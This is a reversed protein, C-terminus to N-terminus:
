KLKLRRGTNWEYNYKTFSSACLTRGCSYVVSLYKRTGPFCPDRFTQNSVAVVCKQKSYCSRSVSHVSSHNHARPPPDRDSRCLWAEGSGYFASQISITSHRPCHLRLPQGDCAHASHSTIIRSLYDTLCLASTVLSSRIFSSVCFSLFFFVYHLLIKVKFISSVWHFM